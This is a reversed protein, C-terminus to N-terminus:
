SPEPVITEAEPKDKKLERFSRAWDENAAKAEELQQTLLLNEEALKGAETRLEEIVQEQAASVSGLNDIDALYDIVPGDDTSFSLEPNLRQFEALIVHHLKPNVKESPYVVFRAVETLKGPEGKDSNLSLVVTGVTEKRAIKLSM